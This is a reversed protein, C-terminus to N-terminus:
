FVIFSVFTLNQGTQRGTLIPAGYSGIPLWGKIFVSQALYEVQGLLARASRRPAPNIM